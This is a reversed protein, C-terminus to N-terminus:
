CPKRKKKAEEAEKAKKERRAQFAKDRDSEIAEIIPRKLSIVCDHM